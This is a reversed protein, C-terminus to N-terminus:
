AADFRSAQIFLGPYLHIGLNALEAAFKPSNGTAEFHGLVTGGDDRGAMKFRFIEQM